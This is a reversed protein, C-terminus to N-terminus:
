TCTCACVGFISYNCWQETSSQLYGPHHLLGLVLPMHGTVSAQQGHIPYIQLNAREYDRPPLCQMQQNISDLWSNPRCADGCQNDQRLGPSCFSVVITSLLHTPSQDIIEHNWWFFSVASSIGSEHTTQWVWNSGKGLVQGDIVAHRRERVSDTVRHKDMHSSSSVGVESPGWRCCEAQGILDALCARVLIVENDPTLPLDLFKSAGSSLRRRKGGQRIGQHRQAGSSDNEPFSQSNHFSQHHQSSQKSAVWPGLLQHVNYKKQTVLQRPIQQFLPRSIHWWNAICPKNHVSISQGHVGFNNEIVYQGYLLPLNLYCSFEIAKQFLVM